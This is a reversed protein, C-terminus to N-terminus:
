DADAADAVPNTLTGISDITIKVQDGAHLFVAPDRAVGVGEPTGTLVVTGPLLTTDQSLFAILKEITFIMDSTNSQQMVQDNVITTLAMQQPNTLEDSTVMVPGLPCFTDFGKGRIWQGGGAEKQWRRASVDHGITYGLIHQGAREEPIDRGAKGIIVALEGEYDVEPGRLQCRPLRIPQQHGIASATPKMFMVPHEPLPQGTEKAHKRYNLGICYINAPRVPPQRQAITAVEGTPRLTAGLPDDTPLLEATGDGRDVGARLVGEPDVFRAIQM